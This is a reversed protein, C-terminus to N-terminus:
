TSVGSHQHLTLHPHCSGTSTPSRSLLLQRIAGITRSFVLPEITDVVTPTNGVNEYQSHDRTCLNSTIAHESLM